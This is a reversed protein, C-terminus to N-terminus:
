EEEGEFHVLRNQGFATDCIRQVDDRCLEDKICLIKAEPFALLTSTSIIWLWESDKFKKVRAYAMAQAIDDALILFHIPSTEYMTQQLRPISAVSYCLECFISLFNHEPRGCLPDM